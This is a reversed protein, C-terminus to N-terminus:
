RALRYVVVYQVGLDDREVALLRDNGYGVVRLEPPAVFRGRLSGAPDFVDWFAPDGSALPDPDLDDREVLLTGDASARLGGVVPRADPVPLDLRRRAIKAYMEMESGPRPDAIREAEIEWARQVLADTVPIPEPRGLIRRVPDGTGADIVDIRYADGPAFYLRGDGGTAVRPTPSFWPELLFGIEGALMMPPNPFSLVEDGFEEASRGSAFVRTTDRFLVNPERDGFRDSVTRIWHRGTTLPIPSEVAM